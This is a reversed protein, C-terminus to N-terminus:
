RRRGAGAGNGSAVSEAVAPYHPLLADLRRDGPALTRANRRRLEDGTVVTAQGPIETEIEPGRTASVVVKESVPAPTPQPAPPATSDQASALSARLLGLSLLLLSVNQLRM